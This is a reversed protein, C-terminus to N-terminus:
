FHVTFGTQSVFESGIRFFRIRVRGKLSVPDSDWCFERILGSGFSEVNCGKKQRDYTKFVIVFLEFTKKIFYRDIGNRHKLETLLPREEERSISHLTKTSSHTKMVAYLTWVWTIRRVAM